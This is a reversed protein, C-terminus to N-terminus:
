HSFGFGRLKADSNKLCSSRTPAGATPQASACRTTRTGAGRITPSGTARTADLVLARAKDGLPLMHRVGDARFDIRRLDAAAASQRLLQCARAPRLRRLGGCIPMAESWSSRMAAGGQPLVPRAHGEVGGGGRIPLSSAPWTTDLMSAADRGLPVCTSSAILASILGDCIRTAKSRVLEIEDGRRRAAAGSARPRRGRRRRRLDPSFRCAVDRRAGLGCGQRLPVCTSSAMLASILGDCIRTAKSRVLEIEDGRGDQALVPARSRGDGIAVGTSERALPVEDDCWSTTAQLARARVSRTAGLM